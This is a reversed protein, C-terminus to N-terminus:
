RSRSNSYCGSREYLRTLREVYRDLSFRDIAQRQAKEGMSSRLGEDDILRALAETLQSVNGREVLLMSEREDLLGEMFPMRWAVVPVGAVAAELVVNPLGEDMSPFCFVDLASLWERASADAGTFVACDSLGLMEARANLEKLQPGYGILLLNVGGYQQRLAATAELLLDFRKQSDFRGMSGIWFTSEPIGFRESWRRRAAARPQVKTEVANPVSHIKGDWAPYAAALDRAAAPSNVIMGGTLGMALRAQARTHEFSAFSGRLSGFTARAGLLRGIVGAYPSAFLHWAHVIEPSHPRLLRIMQWIRALRNRRRPVRLLPIGMREIVPEWYDGCGPHLTMVVPDFRARDLNALWLYLQREAGGVVLQGALIAVRRAKM